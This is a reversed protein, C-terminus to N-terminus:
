HLSRPAMSRAGQDDGSHKVVAVSGALITLCLVAAALPSVLASAHERWVHIAACGFTFSGALLIAFAQEHMVYDATGLDPPSM